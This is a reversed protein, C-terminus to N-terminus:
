NWKKLQKELESIQKLSEGIKNFDIDGEFAKM